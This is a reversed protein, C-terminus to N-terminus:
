KTGGAQKEQRHDEPTAQLHELTLGEIRCRAAERLFMERMHMAVALRATRVISEGLEVYEGDM